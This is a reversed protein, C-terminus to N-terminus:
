NTQQQHLRLRPSEQHRSKRHNQRYPSYDQVNLIFFYRTERELNKDKLDIKGAFVSKLQEAFLKQKDGDTKTISTGNKINPYSSGKSTYGM